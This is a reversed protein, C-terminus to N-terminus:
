GVSSVLSPTRDRHRLDTDIDSCMIYYVTHESAATGRHTHQVHGIHIIVAERRRRRRRWQELKNASKSIPAGHVRASMQPTRRGQGARGQRVSVVHRLEM